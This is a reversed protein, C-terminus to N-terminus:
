KLYKMIKAAFSQKYNDFSEEQKICEKCICYKSVTRQECETLYECENCGTKKGCVFCKLEIVPDRKALGVAAEQAMPSPTKKIQNDIKGCSLHRAAKASASWWAKGPLVDKGCENCKANFTITIQLWDTITM